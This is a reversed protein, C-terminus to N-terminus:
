QCATATTKLDGKELGLIASISFNSKKPSTEENDESINSSTDDTLIDIHKDDNPNVSTNPARLLNDQQTNMHPMMLSMFQSNIMQHYHQLALPYSHHQLYPLRQNIFRDDISPSNTGSSSTEYHSLGSDDKHSHSGPSFASPSLVRLRKHEVEYPSEEDARSM